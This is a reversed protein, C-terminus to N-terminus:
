QVPKVIKEIIKAVKKPAEPLMQHTTDVTELKCNLLDAVEESKERTIAGDKDGAVVVAPKTFNEFEDTVDYDIMAHLGYRVPKEDAKVLEKRTMEKIDQKDSGKVYNETIEDAWQRRDREDFKELFYKVSKNEPDPTSASTALLCLGFFNSYNAAYQLAVMGGMSHGVLVPNELSLEEVLEHLDEALTEINFKSCSSEGHCRQDYFIKKNEIDLYPEIYNWFEKSGLWGHIFVIEPRKGDEVRYNIGNIEPM